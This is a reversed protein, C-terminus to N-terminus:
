AKFIAGDVNVKVTFHDPKVWLNSNTVDGTAFYAHPSEFNAIKWNVLVSTSSKMVDLGAWNKKQWLLENCTKWISWRIMAADVAVDVQNGKLLGFFWTAFDEMAGAAPVITPSFVLLLKPPVALQWLKKWCNNDELYLWSGRSSQLHKYASKVSYFDSTEMNWFWTDKNQLGQNETIVYPNSDHPLWPDKLVNVLSGNTISLRAGAKVLMQAAWISRWIFSPNQGLEASIFSGNLYYRAKYIKGVLSNEM